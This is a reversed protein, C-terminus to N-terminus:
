GKNPVKSIPVEEDHPLIATVEEQVFGSLLEYQGALLPVRFVGEGKMIVDVDSRNFDPIIPAEIM